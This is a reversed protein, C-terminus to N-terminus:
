AFSIAISMFEDQVLTLLHAPWALVSPLWEQVHSYNLGATGKTFVGEIM